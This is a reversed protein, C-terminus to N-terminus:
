YGKLQLVKTLTQMVVYDKIWNKSCPVNVWPAAASCHAICDEYYQMFLSWHKRMEWDTSNHKHRKLPNDIREQLNIKQQTKSINLFYKVIITKQDVLLQEFANIHQFRRKAEDDDILGLVRTVLVDEYHSRNFVMLTGKAPTKHHIRWLFDHALEERTPVKFSTSKVIAPSAYRFCRRQIGDKGSADMGQLVVLVAHNQTAHLHELQLTLKKALRKNEQQTEEKHLEPMHTPLDQIRTM